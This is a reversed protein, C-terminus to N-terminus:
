AAGFVVLKQSPMDVEAIREACFNMTALEVESLFTVFFQRLDENMQLSLIQNMGNRVLNFRHRVGHDPGDLGMPDNSFFCSARTEVIKLGVSAAAAEMEYRSRVLMWNTRMTTRPMYETTVIRGTPSLHKALNRMATAFRDAEPIHFLVNMVNILDFKEGLELSPDTLDATAFATRVKSHNAYRRKLLEISAATFDVGMLLAPSYNSLFFRIWRGSGAGVDLIRGGDAAIKLDSILRQYVPYMVADEVPNSYTLGAENSANEDLKKWAEEYHSRIDEQMM